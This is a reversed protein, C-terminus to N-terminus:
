EQLEGAPELPFSFPMLSIFLVSSWYGCALLLPLLLQVPLAVQKEGNILTARLAEFTRAEVRAEVQM